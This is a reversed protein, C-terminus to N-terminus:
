PAYSRTFYAFIQKGRKHAEAKAKDLDTIWAANAVWEQALKDALKKKLGGGRQAAVPTSFLLAALTVLSTTRRNTMMTPVTASGCLGRM